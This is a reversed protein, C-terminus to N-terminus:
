IKWIKDILNGCFYVKKQWVEQRLTLFTYKQLQTLGIRSAGQSNGWPKIAALTAQNYRRSITLKGE